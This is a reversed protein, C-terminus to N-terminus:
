VTARLSMLMIRAHATVAHSVSRARILRHLPTVEEAAVHAPHTPKPGRM